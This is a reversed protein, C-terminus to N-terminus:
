SQCGRKSMTYTGTCSSYDGSGSRNRFSGRFNGCGPTLKPLEFHWPEHPLRCFGKRLMIEELKLQCPAFFRDTNVEKCGYDLAVGSTHPCLRADPIANPLRRRNADLM